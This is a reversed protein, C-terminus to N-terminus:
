PTARGIRGRRMTRIRFMETQQQTRSVGLSFESNQFLPSSDLLKLLPAAQPAEGAIVVSDPYIEITNTWIEPPLIRTLENLVDLDAQPRRRLDDLARIRARDQTVTREITQTRAAAPELKRAAVALENRYQRQSVAPLIVLATLMALVTLLGLAAPLLYQVRDHSARREPPLLNALKRTRSVSGALAAAYALVPVGADAGNVPMPLGERLPREAVDAALRLEGRAIALSRERSFPFEGSFVGRAESEGYVETRGRADSFYFLLSAPM